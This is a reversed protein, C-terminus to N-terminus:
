MCDCITVGDYRHFSANGGKFACCAIPRHWILREGARALAAGITYVDDESCIVDVRECDSDTLGYQIQWLEKVKKENAM